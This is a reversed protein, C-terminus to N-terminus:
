DAIFIRTARSSAGDTLKLIYLGNVLDSSLKLSINEAAAVREQQVLKGDISYLELLVRDGSIGNKTIFVERGKVPNPYVNFDANRAVNDVSVPASFTIALVPHTEADEHDKSHFRVLEERLETGSEDTHRIMITVTQGERGTLLPTVDVSFEGFEKSVGGEAPDRPFPFLAVVPGVGAISDPRTTYTVDAESWDNDALHYQLDLQHVSNGGYLWLEANEIVGNAVPSAPIDFKLYTFRNLRRVDLFESETTGFAEDERGTDGRVFADEVATVEVVQQGTGSFTFVFLFAFLSITKFILIYNKKM